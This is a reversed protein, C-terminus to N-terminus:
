PTDKSCLRQWGPQEPDTSDRHPQIESQSSHEGKDLKGM